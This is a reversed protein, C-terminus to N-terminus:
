VIVVKIKPLVLNTGDGRDVEARFWIEYDTRLQKAFESSLQMRTIGQAADVMSWVAHDRIIESNTSGLIATYGELNLPEGEADRWNFTLDISQGYPLTLTDSM